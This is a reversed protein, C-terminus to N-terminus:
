DLHSGRKKMTRFRREPLEDKTSDAGDPTVSRGTADPLSAAERVDRTDAGEMSQKIMMSRWRPVRSDM